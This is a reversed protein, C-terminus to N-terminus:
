PQSYELGLGLGLGLCLGLGLELADAQRHHARARTLERVRTGGLDHALYVPSIPSIYPLYLPSIPLIAHELGLHVAARLRELLAQAAGNGKWREPM